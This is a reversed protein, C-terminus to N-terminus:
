SRWGKSLNSIFRKIYNIKDALIQLEFKNTPPVITMITDKSMDGIEIGWEHVMSCLFLKHECQICM